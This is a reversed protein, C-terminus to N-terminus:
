NILFFLNVEQLSNKEKENEIKITKIKKSNEIDRECIEVEKEKKNIRLKM